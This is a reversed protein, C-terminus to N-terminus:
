EDVLEIQWNEGNYFAYILNSYTYIKTICGSASKQVDQNNWVDSLHINNNKDVTFSVRNSGGESFNITKWIENEKLIFYIAGSFDNFLFVPEGSATLQMKVYRVDKSPLPIEETKWDVGEKFAYLYKSGATILIHPNSFDDISLQLPIYEYCIDGSCPNVVVEPIHWVNGEFYTYKVSFGLALYGIHVINEDNIGFAEYNYSPPCRNYHVDPLEPLEEWLQSFINYKKIRCSTNSFFWLDGNSNFDIVKLDKDVSIIYVIWENSSEIAFKYANESENYYLIYPINDANLKLGRVSGSLDGNTVININWGNSDKFAYKITHDDYDYYGIFPRGYNDVAISQESDIISEYGRQCLGGYLIILFCFFFLKKM